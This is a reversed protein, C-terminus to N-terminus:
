RSIMLRGSLASRLLGSEPDVIVLQYLYIGSAFRGADYPVERIGAEQIGLARTDILRGSIDFVQLTVGSRSPISYRITQRMSPNPYTGLLQYGEPPRPSGEEVGTLPAHSLFAWAPCCEGEYQRYWWTRTGYSDTYNAGFSDGDFMNVGIFLSGDGLGAPYGLKTLDIALEATYGTDINSGLTDVTTGAKPTLALTAGGNGLLTVLYDAAQASGAPGVQFSLRRGALEKDPGRVVRDNITVIFGDWRDIAAHYQVVEDRVDFGMYLLNGKVFMKITGDGPDLVSAVGGNVTPQYQGSRYRGVGPYSSRLAGDGYRIDIGPTQAWVPETLTGNITPASFGIAEPIILDPHLLPAPGSDVTVSPKAHIRVENYWMQNGWPSQWWTRTCYFAGPNIPWFYDTDYVDINFEIIDGSPQTVNYGESALNFRMEVTYGVDPAGADTNSTGNVVTAADWNAIMTSDRPTGDNTAWRGRFQPLQGVPQPDANNPYWWTYFYESPPKPDLGNAHDKLAMLLADFRNFLESGGISKDRVWAGMYLQNDRVLFKITARTSDSPLVGSEIKWGSGPIGNDIGFKVSVSEAKAWSTESLIGNLVIAETTKRAWISDARKAQAFAQAPLILTAILVMAAELTKRM